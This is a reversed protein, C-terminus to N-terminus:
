ELDPSHSWSLDLEGDDADWQIFTLSRPPRPAGEVTITEEQLADAQVTGLADQLRIAFKYAGDRLAPLMRGHNQGVMRRWPEDFTHLRGVIERHGTPSRRSLLAELAADRVSSWRSDLAPILVRTAAENPTERLVRFTTALGESM